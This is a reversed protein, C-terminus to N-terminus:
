VPNSNDPQSVVLLEATDDPAIDLLRLAGTMVRSFVPAAVEGGFYKEGKPDNIVVVAALRPDSAPVFGAFLSVYRSDEYGASGVKHVTGTKGAVIYGDVAARTGTGGEMIVTRLMNNVERVHTKDFLREEAITEDQRLLSVPKRLGENALVAYTQALQLSTVSLGYGYALNARQIDRWRKFRPLVGVSEGPFAVGTSQGFGLRSLLDRVEEDGLSLAIKSTGVQSSKKIVEAVSLVGYNRYDLITKRGVRMYGPRTDIMTSAAYKGSELAALVTFPKVTSGPEFLDTIARNRTTGARVSRRDNPNYSPQNAMALVEGTEVDLVVISGSQARHHKVAAKLERYALYQVRLDISLSLDKGPSAARIAEINRITNGRRDKLVRKAGPQGLLWQDWSLEVGEQGQDDINTMGVIHAVVEGAPYFRKYERRSYVGSIDLEMVKQAHQPAMQRALYIFEKKSNRTIKQELERRSMGLVNALAGWREAQHLLKGPDAWISKVPTSVALPEGHRDTIIGRHAPITSTRISRADGQGQLFDRGRETDMVQLWAVRGILLALLVLLLFVVLYLRWSQAQLVPEEKM